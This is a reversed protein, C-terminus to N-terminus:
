DDTWRYRVKLHNMQSFDVWGDHQLRGVIIGPAIGQQQAFEKVTSASFPHTAAFQKWAGQDILQNSAWENAERELDTENNGKGEIFILRKSHLLIHAAEHFFSFWLHDDSMFRASLQIIAKNPSLWWAAGSVATKQLPKVIALAIGAANALEQAAELASEIPERTLGRIKRM